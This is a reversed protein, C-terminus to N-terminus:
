GGERSREWSCTSVSRAVSLLRNLVKVVGSGPYVGEANKGEWEAGSRNSEVIM